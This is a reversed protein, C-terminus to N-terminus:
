LYTGGGDGERSLLEQLEGFPNGDVDEEISDTPVFDSWGTLEIILTAELVKVYTLIMDYRSEAFERIEKDNRSFANKLLRKLKEGDNVFDKLEPLFIDLDLTPALFGEDFDERMVMEDHYSYANSVVDGIYAAIVKMYRSDEPTGPYLLKLATIDDHHEHAWKVYERAQMLWNVIEYSGSDRKEVTM